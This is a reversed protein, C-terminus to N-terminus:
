WQEKRQLRFMIHQTQEVEKGAADEESGAGARDGFDPRPIWRFFYKDLSKGRLLPISFCNFSPPKLISFFCEGGVEVAVSQAFRESQTIPFDGGCFVFFYEPFRRILPPHRIYEERIRGVVADYVQLDGGPPIGVVTRRFGEPFSLVVRSGPM